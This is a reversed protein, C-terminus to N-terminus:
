HLGGGPQFRGTIQIGNLRSDLAASEKAFTDIREGRFTAELGPNLKLAAIQGRTFGQAAFRESGAAVRESLIGTIDAGGEAASV